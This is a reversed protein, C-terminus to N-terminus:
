SHVNAVSTPSLCFGAMAQPLLTNEVYKNNKKNKARRAFFLFFLLPFARGQVAINDDIL